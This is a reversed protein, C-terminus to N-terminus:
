RIKDLADNFKINNVYGFSLIRSLAYIDAAHKTISEYTFFLKDLVGSNSNWYNNEESLFKPYNRIMFKRSIPNLYLKLLMDVKTDKNVPYSLLNVEMPGIVEFVGSFLFETEKEILYDLVFYDEHLKIFSHIHKYSFYHIWRHRKQKFFDVSLKFLKMRIPNKFDVLKKWLHVIMFIGRFISSKAKDNISFDNLLILDYLIEFLKIKNESSIIINMNNRFKIDNQICDICMNARLHGIHIYTNTGIYEHNIICENEFNSQVRPYIEALTYLVIQVIRCIHCSLHNSIDLYEDSNDTYHKLTHQKDYYDIDNSVIFYAEKLLKNIYNETEIQNM